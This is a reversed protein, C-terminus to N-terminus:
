LHAINKVSIIIVFGLAANILAYSSIAIYLWRLQQGTQRYYMYPLLLIGGNLAAMILTSSASQINFWDWLLTSPVSGILFSYYWLQMKDLPLLLAFGLAWVGGWFLTKNIPKQYWKHKTTALNTASNNTTKDTNLHSNKAHTMIKTM